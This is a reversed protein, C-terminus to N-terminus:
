DHKAEDEFYLAQLVVACLIYCKEKYQCVECYKENVDRADM